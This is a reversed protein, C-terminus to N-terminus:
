QNAWAPVKGTKRRIQEIADKMIVNNKPRPGGQQATALGRGLKNLREPHKAYDEFPDFNRYWHEDGGHMIGIDSIAAAGRPKLIAKRIRLDKKLEDWSPFTILGQECCSLFIPRFYKDRIQFRMMSSIAYGLQGYTMSHSGGMVLNLIQQQIYSLGLRTKSM